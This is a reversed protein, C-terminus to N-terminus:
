ANRRVSDSLIKRIRWYKQAPRELEFWVNKITNLHSLSQSLIAFLLKTALENNRPLNHLTSPNMTRSFSWNTPLNSSGPLLFWTKQWFTQTITARLLLRLGVNIEVLDESRPSAFTWWWIEGYDHGETSSKNRDVKGFFRNDRFHHRMTSKSIKYKTSQM